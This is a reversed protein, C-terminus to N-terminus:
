PRPPQAVTIYRGVTRNHTQFSTRAVRNVDDATVAALRDRQVFLLRWDGLSSASSLAQAMATTNGLRNEEVRKVRVKARDVEDRKFPQAAMNELTQLLTDRVADLQGPEAQAMAS